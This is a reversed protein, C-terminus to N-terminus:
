CKLNEESRRKQEVIWQDVDAELWGKSRGGPVLQRHFEDDFFSYACQGFLTKRM